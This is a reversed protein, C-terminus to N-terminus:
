EVTGNEVSVSLGCLEALTNVTPGGSAKTLFSEGVSLYTVFDVQKEREKTDTFSSAGMDFRGAQMGPIITAFTANVVKVKLGMVDALAKVLDPDMGVVTKGDPGIFENPAYTADSAVTLTGKKKIAAPVEAAIKSNKSASVNSSTTSKNSSGCGAVALVAVAALAMSVRQLARSDLSM